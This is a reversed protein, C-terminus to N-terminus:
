KKIGALTAWRDLDANKPAPQSSGVSRSSSGLIRRSAGESLNRRSKPKTLSKSLSEFLLKAENLTSANDLSEVIHKQQKISLDRNQMLKNAYLLKANFLNMENLQKKMGVLTSKYEKLQKQMLRNKRQANRRLAAEKKLTPTPADGVQDALANLLGEDVDVFMEKELSGGGFHSAMASAEGERLRKMKGIERRLMNEDIELTRGENNSDEFDDFHENEELSSDEDFNLEEEDLDGELEYMERIWSENKEDEDEPDEEPEELDLDDELEGEDDLEDDTGLSSRINQAVRELDDADSLSLDGEDDLDLDLGGLDSSDDDSEPDSPDLVEEDEDEFLDIELLEDLSENLYKSNRRRSMTRLEKNIRLYTELLTNDSNIISNNKLNNLEENLNNLIKNFRSVRDKSINRGEALLYVKKFSKVSEYLKNLKQELVTKKFNNTMLKKIVNVSEETVEFTENELVEEADNVNLDKESDSSNQEKDDKTYEEENNSDEFISNEVLLKIQPTMAEVLKQKAREEAAEKLAKADLIAEEYISNSM